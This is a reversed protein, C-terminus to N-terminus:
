LPGDRSHSSDLSPRAVHYLLPRPTISYQINHQGLSGQRWGNRALYPGLSHGATTATHPLCWASERGPSSIAPCPIGALAARRKDLALLSNAEVARYSLASRLVQYGERLIRLLAFLLLLSSSFFLFTFRADGLPRRRTSIPGAVVNAGPVNLLM